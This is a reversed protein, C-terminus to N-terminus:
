RRIGIKSILKNNKIGSSSPYDIYIVSRYVGPAVTMGERNLGNWYLLYGDRGLTTETAFLNDTSSWTVTNGAADYIKWYGKVKDKDIDPIKLGQIQIVVGGGPGEGAWKIADPTHKFELIWTQVHKVSPGAPNAPIIVHVPSGEVVVRVKQNVVTPANNNRDFVLPSQSQLNVWHNANLDHGNSMSFILISDNVIRTFANISDLVTDVEVFSGHTDQTWVRFTLPPDNTIIFSGGSQGAIKESMWITVTDQAPNDSVIRKVVRWVVPPCGDTTLFGTVNEVGTIGNISIVPRWSTQPVPNLPNTQKESLYVAYSSSDLQIISDATFTVGTMAITFNGTANRDINASKDFTLDIRDILGNGNIDRTVASDLLAGLTGPPIHVPCAIRLTDLPLRPNESNRFIAIITDDPAAHELIGNSSVPSASVARDFLVSFSDTTGIRDLMFIERDSVTGSTNMLDVMVNTYNYDATGPSYGFRLEVSSMTGDIMTIPANNYRFMLDRDWYTVEYLSTDLRTGPVTRVYFNIIHTTDRIARGNKSLRYNIVYTFRTTQGKLPFLRGFTFASDTWNVASQSGISIRTPRGISNNCIVTFVSDMLLNMLQDFTTNQYGWATSKPNSTSYGNNQINRTMTDITPPVATGGTTFYVTFTTPITDGQMFRRFNDGSSPRNAEGDSLFIIFQKNKRNVNFSARFADRAADFGANINTYTERLVTNTPQYSLDVYQGPGTGRLTTDLIGKLIDYGTRNGYAAYVSDLQLLPVYAGYDLAPPRGPPRVFYTSDNPDFYLWTGFVAVGVEVKPFNNRLTDIFASTVTFRNGNRDTAPNSTSMSGSNDIIIFVSPTDATSDALTTFTEAFVKEAMAVMTDSVVITDGNLDEPVGKYSFKGVVEASLLSVSAMLISFVLIKNKMHGGEMWVPLPM